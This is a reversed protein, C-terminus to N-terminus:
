DIAPVTCRKDHTTVAAPETRPAAPFVMAGNASSAATELAEPMAVALVAAALFAAADVAMLGLVAGPSRGRQMLGSFFRTM